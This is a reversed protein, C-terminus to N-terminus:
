FDFEDSLSVDDLGEVAPTDLVEGDVDFRSGHCPCDWSREGDNWSVLCGLHPCVASRTHREGDDDRYVAVPDGDAEYVGAEGPDLDAREVAPRSGLYDEAYHEMAHRNHSLFTSKSALPKLRTPEFVESWASERDLIEDALIRGAATGNTMGWGGFGTAVYVNSVQPAAKGVFPVSDVSVYDQTAWRYEISEVDFRERARRELRRYREETSDGHGTRHNQGGLLVLSDATAHPRVSFYPEGAHYYLGDPADGALRAAVVYSRKPRMRSFYLADDEVPFHSAVVVDDARVTGRDTSVRCPAGDDVSEVTTEEFVHSGGGAVGRALELLYRRPDFYAQEDFRVAGEVAYPLDTEEVYSAPLGVRRAANVESRIKSRDEGPTAYTYAPARGFGCDIDRRQVTEAIDDIAAQNAAAYQRTLEAGFRDLLRDYVLGHLSTVKATTHGTTGDLIRDRELLAVTQGAADLKAATTIGAIGGGVVATDVTRDGDLPDYDTRDSTAFWVPEHRGEPASASDDM